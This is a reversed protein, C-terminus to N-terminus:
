ARHGRNASTNGASSIREVIAIATDSTPVEPNPASAIGELTYTTCLGRPCVGFLVDERPVLRRFRIKDQIKLYTSEGAEFFVAEPVRGPGRPGQAGM